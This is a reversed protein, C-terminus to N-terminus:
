HDVEVVQNCKFTFHNCLLGIWSFFLLVRGLPTSTAHANVYIIDKPEVGSRTFTRSMALAAGQGSPAPQTIHHGDGSVGYGRIQLLSSDNDLQFCDERSCSKSSQVACIPEYPSSCGHFFQLTSNLLM